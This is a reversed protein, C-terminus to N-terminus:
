GSDLYTKGGSQYLVVPYGGDASIERPAFINYSVNPNEADQQRENDVEYKTSNTNPMPAADTKMPSDSANSM